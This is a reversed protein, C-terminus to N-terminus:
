GGEPGEPLTPFSGIPSNGPLTNEIPLGSVM